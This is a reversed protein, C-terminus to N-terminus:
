APVLARSKIELAEFVAFEVRAESATTAVPQATAAFAHRIVLWAPWLILWFRGCFVTARFTERVLERELNEIATRNPCDDSAEFAAWVPDLEDVHSGRRHQRRYVAAGAVVFSAPPAGIQILRRGRDGLNTLAGREVRTLRLDELEAIADLVAAGRLTLRNRAIEPVVVFVLTGAFVVSFLIAFLSWLQGVDM